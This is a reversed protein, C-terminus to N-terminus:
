IEIARVCIRYNPLGNICTVLNITNQNTNEVSNIMSWDTSKIKNISQVKYIKTGKKTKYYIEDNQELLNIKEFYHANTGSNHSALSVNGNWYNSEKFHGVYKNMIDQTTGDKIPAKVNLKPIELIGIINDQFLIQNEKNEFSINNVLKKNNGFEQYNQQNLIKKSWFSYSRNENNSTEILSAIKILEENIQHQKNIYKYLNFGIQFVSFVITLSCIIAICSKKM